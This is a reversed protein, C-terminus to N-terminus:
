SKTNKSDNQLIQNQLLCIKLYCVAYAQINQRINLVGVVEVARNNYM